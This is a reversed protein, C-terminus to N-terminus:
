NLTEHTNGDFGQGGRVCWALGFASGKDIGNSVNGQASGVAGALTPNGANTTASWYFAGPLVNLFPHGTPLAPNNNSIDVLSALQERLPLQFGKRGGVLRNACHNIASVWTLSDSDPSREWVLGTENDRVVTNDWL